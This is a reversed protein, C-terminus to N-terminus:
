NFCVLRATSVEAMDAVEGEVGEEVVEELGINIKVRGSTLTNTLQIIGPAMFHVGGHDLPDEQTSLDKHLHTKQQLNM